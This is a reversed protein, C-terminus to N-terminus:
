EIVKKYITEIGVLYDSYEEIFKNHFYNDTFVLIKRNSKSLSLWYCKEFIASRQGAKIKGEQLENTCVFLSIVKDSSVGHFKRSEMNGLINGEYFNTKFEIALRRVINRIDKKIQSTDGM